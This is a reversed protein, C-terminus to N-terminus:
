MRIEFYVDISEKALTLFGEKTINGNNDRYISAYEQSYRVFESDDIKTTSYVAIITDLSGDDNLLVNFYEDSEDDHIIM